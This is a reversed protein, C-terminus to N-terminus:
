FPPDGSTVVEEKLPRLPKPLHEPRIEGREWATVYVQAERVATRRDTNRFVMGDCCTVEWSKPAVPRVIYYGLWVLEVYSIRPVADVVYPYTKEVSYEDPLIDDSEEEDMWALLSANDKPM